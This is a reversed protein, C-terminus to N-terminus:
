IVWALESGRKRYQNPTLGTYARFIRSFYAQSNFGCEMCIELISDNSKLLGQCAQHVKLSNIYEFVSMGTANKFKRCLHHKTIFFRDAIEDLSQITKYNKAIYDLIRNLLLNSKDIFGKHNEPAHDNLLMLINMLYVSQEAVNEKEMAESLKESYFCFIRKEDETLSMVPESFCALYKKIVKDKFVKDFFVPSFSILTRKFSEGSTKHFVGPPILAICGATMEYVRNNIIYSRIGEHLYYIEYLNHIHMCPMTGGKPNDKYEFEFNETSFYTKMDAEALMGSRHVKDDRVVDVKKM